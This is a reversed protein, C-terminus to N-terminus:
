ENLYSQILQEDIKDKFHINFEQLLQMFEAYEKVSLLAEVPENSSEIRQMSLLIHTSGVWNVKLNWNAKM